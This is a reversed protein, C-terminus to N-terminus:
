SDSLSAAWKRRWDSDSMPATAATTGGQRPPQKAPKTGARDPSEGPKAQRPRIADMAHRVEELQDLVEALAADVTVTEVGDYHARQVNVVLQALWPAKAREGLEPAVRALEASVERHYEAVLREHEAAAAEARAKEARERDSQERERLERELRDVRPDRGSAERLIAKNLESPDLDLQRLFEVPDDKVVQSARELREVRAARAELERERAVVAAEAAALKERAARKEARFKARERVAVRGEVGETEEPQAPPQAPATPPATAAVTTTEEDSM